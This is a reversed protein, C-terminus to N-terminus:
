NNIVGKLKKEFYKDRKCKKNKCSRSCFVKDKRNAVFEKNCLEYKCNRLPKFFDLENIIRNGDFKM